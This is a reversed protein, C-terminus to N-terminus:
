KRCLAETAAEAPDAGEIVRQAGLLAAGRVELPFDALVDAAFAQANKRGAEEGKDQSAAKLRRQVRAYVSTLWAKLTDDGDDDKGAPAAGEGVYAAGVDELRVNAGQVIRIDGDPGFTNEGLKRAVDNGTFVGINRLVAYADARSKYDGQEAWDVDLEIFKPPGRYPVLKYDAEQEIEKVWPRLTDRSFELGQHEINNNTSKVLHAIKHPPVHFWRCIDDVTMAKVESYLSQEMNQGFTKIDWEGTLLGTTYAQKVGAHRKTLSEKARQYNPDDMNGGKYNFVTGMQANNGFYSEAYQDIALAVAITRIARALMNDGSFGVLSAGRIIFLEEPELDVWGGRYEQTIRYFLRGTEEDRRPEVRHPAIPWLAKIRGAMDLEIEAYGNGMGVAGLAIARKGAQATMESNWRTNLLYQLSDRPLAQKNAEGRYGGLVNWDSASLAKAIVDMCAWIAAVQTSSDENIHLGAMVRYVSHSFPGSQPDAKHVQVANQMPEDMLTLAMSELAASTGPEPAAKRWRPFYDRLAM